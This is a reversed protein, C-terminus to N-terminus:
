RRWCAPLNAQTTAFRRPPSCARGNRCTRPRASSEGSSLRRFWADVTRDPAAAVSSAACSVRGSADFRILNDYGPLEHTIQALRNTCEFGMANPSLTQLLVQASDMRAKATAASREAALNLSSRREEADKHFTLEAQLAGLLLVPLLALALAAGLRARISTLSLRAL